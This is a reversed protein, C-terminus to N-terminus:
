RRRSSRAPGSRARRPLLARYRSGPRVGRRRRVASGACPIRSMWTEASASWAFFVPGTEARRFRHSRWRHSTLQQRARGSAKRGACTAHGSAVRWAMACDTVGSSGAGGFLPMLAHAAHGLIDGHATRGRREAVVIAVGAGTLSDSPQSRALSAGIAPQRRHHQHGARHERRDRHQREVRLRRGCMRPLRQAAREATM